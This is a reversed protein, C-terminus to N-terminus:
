NVLRPYPNEAEGHRYIGYHLHFPTTRANGTRGVYGLVDGEQVIDGPRIDAFRDLHAYYHAELQPGLVWVVQGGLRNTGVRTVLGRTTSVVPTDRPAFIDIGEHRRGNGRPAGWTNVLKQKGPRAVPNRLQVPPEEAALQYMFWAREVAPRVVPAAALSVAVLVGLFLFRSKV